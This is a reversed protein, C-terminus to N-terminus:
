NSNYAIYIAGIWLAASGLISFAAWKRKQVIRAGAGLTFAWATFAIFGTAIM